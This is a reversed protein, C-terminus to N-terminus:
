ASQLLYIQSGFWHFLLLVDIQITFVITFSLSIVIIIQHSISTIIDSFLKVLVIRHLVGFFGVSLNVRADKNLFFFGLDVM